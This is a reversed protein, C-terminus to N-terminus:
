FEVRMGWWPRIPLQRFVFPRPPEVTGDEAVGDAGYIWIFEGQAFTANLVDMYWSLKVKGDPTPVQNEVRLSLDTWPGFSESAYAYPRALWQEGDFRRNVPTRPRGSRLEWMGAIRWRRYKGFKVEGQLRLSHRTDWAPAYTQPGGTHLPNTRLGRQLSYSGGVGFDPHRYGVFADLGGVTGTGDNTYTQGAALAEASDPWVVLRDLWKHYGEVRVLMGFPLLQTVGGTVEFAREARLDPNGVGADYLLPDRRAQHALGVGGKFTTGTPLPVSLGFRPNPLVERTPGALQVRLTTRLNLPIGGVSRWDDEVFASVEAWERSPDFTIGRAAFRGWPMATWPPTVRPDKIAGTGATSFAAAAAGVRVVHGEHLQVDLTARGGPRWTDVVRNIEFDAPQQREEHDFSVYGLVNWSVAPSLRWTWNAQAMTTNARNAVGDGLRLLAESDEDSNLTMHDHGHLVTVRLQHPTGADGVTVRGLYEGFGLGAFESGLVGIGKLIGLYLEFWSRRASILFSAKTQGKEGLPGSLHVSGMALNVDLVGDFESPDGDFYRVDLAGALHGGVWAPLSGAYLDVTDVLKPNFMTFTGGLHNPNLLEVGDLYFGTEEPAGGRVYFLSFMDTDATVGPLQAVVKAVDGMAGPALELDRKTLTWRGSLASTDNPLPAREVERWPKRQRVVTEDTAKPLLAAEVSLAEGAVLDVPQVSREFDPHYVVVSAAGGPLDPLAFAGDPGTRAEAEATSVSVTAGALPQGSRGDLVRGQLTALTPAVPEFVFTYDVAIPSPVGDIEAPSFVFQGAAAVAAPVFREDTATALAADVVLGADDLTLTLTVEAALGALEDPLEPQVSSLLEPAKTLQPAPADDAPTARPAPDPEDEAWAPTALLVALVAWRV